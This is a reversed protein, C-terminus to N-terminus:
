CVSVFHAGFFGMPSDENKRSWVYIIMFVLSPGILAMGM